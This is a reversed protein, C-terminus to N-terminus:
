GNFKLNQLADHKRFEYFIIYFDSYDINEVRLIKLIYRSDYLTDWGSYIM